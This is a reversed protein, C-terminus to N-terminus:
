GFFYALAQTMGFFARRSSFNIRRQTSLLATGMSMTTRCGHLLSPRLKAMRCCIVIDRALAVIRLSKL